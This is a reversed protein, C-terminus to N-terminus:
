LRDDYFRTKQEIQRPNSWNKIKSLYGIIRDWLAIKTSGCKPCKNISHKTIFGCDECESNPINFTLYNCGVNGAHTLILKYQEETLHEELNIHCAAGGDCYDNLAKGHLIIKETVEIDRDYPKFLYSTYLNIDHPVYYGDRYDRTYLKHSASEGIRNRKM